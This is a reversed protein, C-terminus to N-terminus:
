LHARLAARVALRQLCHEAECESERVQNAAVFAAEFESDAHRHPAHRANDYTDLAAAFYWSFGLTFAACASLLGDRRQRLTSATSTHKRESM